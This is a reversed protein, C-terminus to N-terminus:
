SRRRIKNAYATKEPFLDKGILSNLRNDVKIVAKKADKVMKNTTEKM